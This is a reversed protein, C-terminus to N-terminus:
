IVAFGSDKTATLRQVAWATIIPINDLKPEFAPLDLLAVWKYQSYEDSVVIDGSVYIGAIHPIIMSSGDKKRFLVNYSETPVIKIKAAQGIEEDKERKMGELLTQDTTEM